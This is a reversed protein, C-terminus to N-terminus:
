KIRGFDPSPPPAPVTAPFLALVTLVGPSVAFDSLTWWTDSPCLADLNMILQHTFSVPGSGLGGSLLDWIGGEPSDCQWPKRGQVM